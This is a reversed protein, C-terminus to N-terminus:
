RDYLLISRISGRKGAFRSHAIALGRVASEHAAARFEPPQWGRVSRGDQREADPPQRSPPLTASVVEMHIPSSSAARSVLRWSRWSRLLPSRRFRVDVRSVLCKAVVGSGARLPFSTGDLRCDTPM